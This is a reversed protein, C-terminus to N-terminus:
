DRFGEARHSSGVGRACFKGKTKTSGRLYGCPPSSPRAESDWGLPGESGDMSGGLVPLM